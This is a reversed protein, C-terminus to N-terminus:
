EPPMTVWSAGIWMLLTINISESPLGVRTAKRRSSSVPLFTRTALVLPLSMQHGSSLLGQRAELLAVAFLDALRQLFLEVEGVDHLDRAHHLDDDVHTDAVGGAVGLQDVTCDIVERQDGALLRLDALGTLRDCLELQPLAHRDARADRQAAVPHPLEEVPQDRDRQRTDAVEAPKAGLLEVASAVVGEPQGLLRHEVLDVHVRDVPGATHVDGDDGRRRGVVFSSRKQPGEAKRELLVSCMAFFARTLLALLFGLNLTRPYVRQLRHPRGCATYRLNPSHRM